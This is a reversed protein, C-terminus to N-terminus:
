GAEKDVWIFDTETLIGDLRQDHAEMPVEPLEQGAYAVGIVVVSKIRRLNEITRDYCGAGQGLRGGRRDFALVPTFIVDPEVAPAKASPGPIGFADTIMLEGPRRLRFVLPADKALAVPLAAKGALTIGGPDLESGLPHYLSYVPAPPLDAEALRSALRAAADPVEAALRRRVARM